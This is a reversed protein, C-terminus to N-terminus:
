FSIVPDNFRFDIRTFGKGEITLRSIILQLSSMQQDLPKELSFIVNGGQSLSATASTQSIASITALKVKHQLSVELLDRMVQQERMKKSVVPRQEKSFAPLPSLLSRHYVAKGVTSYMGFLVAIFVVALFFEFFILKFSAIIKNRLKRSPLIKHM